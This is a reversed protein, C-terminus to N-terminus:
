RADLDIREDIGIADLFAASHSIVLLAGPYQQLAQEVVARAALDLHNDPEDLLLLEPLVSRELWACLALRVREGSSLSSPSQGWRAAAFGFLSLRERLRAPDAAPVCQMVADLLTPAQPLNAHQDIWVCRRAQRHVDGAAPARAGALTALLLSKGSGNRGGIAIRRPGRLDLDFGDVLVRGGAEIRLGRARLLSRGAAPAAGDLRLDFRAQLPLRERQTRLADALAQERRSAAAIRQGGSAEARGQRFDLLMAGQSGRRRERRGQAARQEAREHGRQAADRAQQLESRAQRLRTDLAATELARQQRYDAYGMAHDHLRGASLEIVRAACGLLEPSHSILLLGGHHQAIRQQLWDRAVADLHASPEDLLLFDGTRLFALALLLRMREGGSLSSPPRALDLGALDLAALHAWLAPDALADGVLGFLDEASASPHASDVRATAMDSGTSLLREATVWSIPAHRLVAGSAPARMGVMAACLSSKGVGNVGVLATVRRDLCLDSPALLARGCSLQLALARLEILVPSQM